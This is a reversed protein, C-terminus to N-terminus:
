IIIEPAMYGCTGYRKQSTSARFRCALGFDGLKIEHVQEGHQGVRLFVNEPKIDRHIIGQEHCAVVAQVVSRFMYRVEAETLENRRWDLYELLNLHAADTM